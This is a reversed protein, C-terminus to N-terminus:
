IFLVSNDRFPFENSFFAAFTKFYYNIISPVSLLRGIAAISRNLSVRCCASAGGHSSLPFGRASITKCRKGFGRFSFPFLM